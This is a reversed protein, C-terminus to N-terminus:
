EILRKFDRNIKQRKRTSPKHKDEIQLNNNKMKDIHIHKITQETYEQLHSHNVIKSSSEEIIDLKDLKDVSNHINKNNGHNINKYLSNNNIYDTENLPYITEKRISKPIIYDYYLNVLHELTDKDSILSQFGRREFIEVLQSISMEEPCYLNVSTGCKPLYELVSQKCENYARKM